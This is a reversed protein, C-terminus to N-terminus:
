GEKGLLANITWVAAPMADPSLTDMGTLRLVSQYGNPLPQRHAVIVDENVLVVWYDKIDAQAYLLSKEGLDKTVSTDAIEVILVTETQTPHRFNYDAEAGAAVLVDPVPEGDLALRVPTEEMVVFAPEMRQRLLRGFRRRLSTHPANQSMKEIIRGQILELREPHEFVGADIARYLADVTWHYESPASGSEEPKEIEHADVKQRELVATAM